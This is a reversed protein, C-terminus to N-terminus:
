GEEDWALGDPTGSFCFYRTSTLHIQNQRIVGIRDERANYLRIIHEETDRQLQSRNQYGRSIRQMM